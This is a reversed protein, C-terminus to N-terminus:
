HVTVKEVEFADMSDAMAQFLDQTQEMGLQNIYITKAAVMFAASLAMQDEHRLDYAMKSVVTLLENESRKRLKKESMEVRQEIHLCKAGAMLSQAIKRPDGVRTGFVRPNKKRLLALLRKSIRQQM